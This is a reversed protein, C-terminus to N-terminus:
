SQPIESPGSVESPQVLNHFQSRSFKTDLTNPAPRNGANVGVTCGACASSPTCMSTQVCHM